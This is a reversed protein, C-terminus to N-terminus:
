WRVGSVNVSEQRKEQADRRAWAASRAAAVGEKYDAYTIAKSTMLAMLDDMERVTVPDLEVQPSSPFGKAVSSSVQSSGLAVKAPDM